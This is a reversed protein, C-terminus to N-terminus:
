IRMFRRGLGRDLSSFRIHSQNPTDFWIGCTDCEWRANVRLLHPSAKNALTSILMLGDIDMLPIPKVNKKSHCEPCVPEDIILRYEKYEVLRYPYSM